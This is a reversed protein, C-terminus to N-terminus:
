DVSQRNGPIIVFVSFVFSLGKNGQLETDTYLIMMIYNGKLTM